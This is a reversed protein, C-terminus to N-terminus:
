PATSSVVMASSSAATRQPGDVHLELVNGFEKRGWISGNTLSASQPIHELKGIVRLLYLCCYFVQVRYGGKNQRLFDARRALRQYFRNARLLSKM